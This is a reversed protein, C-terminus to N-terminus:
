LLNKIMTHSQYGKDRQLLTAALNCCSQLSLLIQRPPIFFAIAEKNLFVMAEVARDKDRLVVVNVLRKNAVIIKRPERGELYKQLGWIASPPRMETSVVM